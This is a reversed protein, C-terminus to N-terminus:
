RSMFPASPRVMAMVGFYCVLHEISNNALLAVRDNTGIGRGHLCTAIRGTAEHLERYSIARGDDACVIWPKDPHRQAAARDLGAVTGTRSSRCQRVANVSM